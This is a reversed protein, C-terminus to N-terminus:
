VALKSTELAVSWFRLGQGSPLHWTQSCPKRAQRIAIRPTAIEATFRHLTRDHVTRVRGKKMGRSPRLTTSKLHAHHGWDVAVNLRFQPSKPRSVM